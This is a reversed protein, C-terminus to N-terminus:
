NRRIVAKRFAYAHFIEPLKKGNELREKSWAKLTQYHVTEKILSEAGNDRLFKFGEEQDAVNLGVQLESRTFLTGVGKITLREIENEDMLEPIERDELAHIQKGLTKAEEEFKSKKDKLKRLKKALEIVKTESKKM